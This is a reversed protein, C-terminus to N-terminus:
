HSAVLKIETWERGRSDRYLATMEASKHGLLAQAFEPGYQESYLRAALSRIEHFSPPTKGAEVKIKAEGRFHAFAKSLSNLSPSDGPLAKAKKRVFHIVSKSLVNDRCRKLVDELSTDIVNLRLSVPIRLKSQNGEVGKTQEVWLFGDKIQDFTMNAIDERRQGSVLALEMANAAWRYAPDKLSEVMIKQFDDLTLRARTVKSKPKLTSEVPNKGAGVMGHTIAERFLDHLRFRIKASMADGRTKVCDKVFDAIEKPTVKSMSQSHFPAKKIAELQSKINVMTNSKKGELGAEYTACWQLLSTDAGDIRQILSVDGRRRELEANATKVKSAAAKFDKGLGFTKGDTPNRFWYYGKNNLYLNDPWNRRDANRRRAAM